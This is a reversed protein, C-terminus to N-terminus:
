SAAAKERPPMVEAILAATEPMLQDAVEVDLLTMLSRVHERVKRSRGLAAEARILDRWPREDHQDVTQATRAVGRASRADGVAMLEEALAHAADIVIATLEEELHREALWAYRGPPLSSFPKGRVLELARRLDGIRAAGNRGNARRVLREFLDADVLVDQLRLRGNNDLRTVRPQGDIGSGLWARTRTVLANRTARPVIREPWLANDIDSLVAQHTALALYVVLETATPLRKPELPGPAAVEVPGLVQVRVVEPDNSLYADVAADLEEADDVTPTTDTPQETATIAGAVPPDVTVTADEDGGPTFPATMPEPTLETASDFITAIDTAMGLPLHCAQMRRETWSLRLQGGPEIVVRYRTDVASTEALVLACGRRVPSSCAAALRAMLTPDARDLADRGVIVLEVPWPERSPDTRTLTADQRGHVDVFASAHQELRVALPEDISDLYRVRERDVSSLQPQLGVLTLEVTSAWPAAAMDAAIWRLLGDVSNRDGAVTVVGLRELDIFFLRENIHGISALAPVACDGSRACTAGSSLWRGETDSKFPDPPDTPDDVLLAAQRTDLEAAWLLHTQGPAVTTLENLAEALLSVRDVDAAARLRVETKTTSAVPLHIRGGTERHRRQVIRLRALAALLGAALVGMVILDSAPRPDEEATLHHESDANRSPDTTQPPTLEDKARGTGVPAVPARAVHAPRRPTPLSSAPLADPHPRAPAGEVPLNVADAPMLLRWGPRIWHPDTLRAGDPQQRNRNLDAIEHWRLPDGLHDAAISWLTDRRGDHPPQVVYYRLGPDPRDVAPATVLRDHIPESPYVAAPQATAFAVPAAVALPSSSTIPTLVVVAAILHGVLQQIGGLGRIQRPRRMTLQGVIEVLVCATFTLWALWAAAVLVAALLHGDDPRLLARGIQAASPLHAPWPSASTVVLLVPLGIVLALLAFAAGLGAGVERWSRRRTAAHRTRASRQSVASM